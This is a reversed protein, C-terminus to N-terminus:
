LDLNFHENYDDWDSLQERLSRQEERMELRQRAPRKHEAGEAALGGLGQGLDLQDADDGGFFPFDGFDDEVDTRSKHM